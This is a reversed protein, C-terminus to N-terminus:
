EIKHITVKLSAGCYACAASDPGTWDVEDARAPAGCSSCSTPLERQVLPRSQAPPGGPPMARRRMPGGFPRRGPRRRGRPRAGPPLSRRLDELERRLAQAERHRGNRELARIVRPAVQAVREYRRAQILLRIAEHGLKDAKGVDGARVYCQAAKLATEGAVGPMNKQRALDTLEEFLPAAQDFLGERLLARARALKDPPREPEDPSVTGSLKTLLEDLM